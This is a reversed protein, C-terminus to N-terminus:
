HKKNISIKTEAETSNLLHHSCSVLNLNQGCEKCLGKCDEQCIPNIPIELMLYDGILDELELSGNEPILTENESLSYGPYTYLEEFDTQLLLDFDELCRSCTVQNHANFSGFLRLGNQTRNFTAIGNFDTFDLENSITIAAFEFPIERTYGIPQNFLFGVNIRFPHRPQNV